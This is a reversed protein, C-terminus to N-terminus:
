SGEEESEEESEPMYGHRFPKEDQPVVCVEWGQDSMKERMAPSASGMLPFMNVVIKELSSITRFEADVVGMAEDAIPYHKWVLLVELTNLSLAAETELRLLGPCRDRLLEIVEESHDELVLYGERYNRFIPFAISVHRVFAANKPGISNLFGEAVRVEARGFAGPDLTAMVFSNYSYLIPTAEDRIFKNTRLIALCLGLPEGANAQCPRQKGWEAGPCLHIYSPILLLDRYIQDRIEFPLELFSLPMTFQLDHLSLIGTVGFVARPVM